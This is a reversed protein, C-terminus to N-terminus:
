AGYHKLWFGDSMPIGEYVEGDIREVFTVTVDFAHKARAKAILAPVGARTSAAGQLAYVGTRGDRAHVSWLTPERPGRCPEQDTCRCDLCYGRENLGGSSAFRHVFM